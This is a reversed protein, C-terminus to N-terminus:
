QFLKATWLGSGVVHARAGIRSEGPKLLVSVTRTSDPRFEYVLVTLTPDTAWKRKLFAEPM